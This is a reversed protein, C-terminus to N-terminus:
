FCERLTVPLTGGTKSAQAGESKHLMRQGKFGIVHMYMLQLLRTEAESLGDYQKSFSNLQLHFMYVPWLQHESEGALHFDASIDSHIYHFCQFNKM